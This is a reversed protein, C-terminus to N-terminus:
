VLFTPRCRGHMPYDSLLPIPCGMWFHSFRRPERFTERRRFLRARIDFAIWGGHRSVRQVVLAEAAADARDAQSNTMVSRLLAERRDGYQHRNRAYVDLHRPVLAGPRYLPPPHTRFEIPTVATDMGLRTMAVCLRHPAQAGGARLWAMDLSAADLGTVALIEARSAKRGENLHQALVVAPDGLYSEM